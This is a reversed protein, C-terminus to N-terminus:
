IELYRGNSTDAGLRNRLRSGPLRRLKSEWRFAATGYLVGKPAMVLTAEPIAGDNGGTFSHLVKFTWGSSTRGLKFVTGCRSSNCKSTNGGFSSTGYLNGSADSVLGGNPQAGDSGGTFSHLVTETWGSSGPSLEFVVGCGFGCNSNAGSQTVGYLNGASDSILRGIPREGDSGCTFNYLVTEIWGNTGPSLKFVLGCSNSGGSIATGYFNDAGDSTLADPGVGNLSSFTFAVQETAARAYVSAGLSVAGTLLLCFITHRSLHIRCM